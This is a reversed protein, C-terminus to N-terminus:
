LPKGVLMAWYTIYKTQPEYVLSVGFDVADQALLNKNHGPSDQWAKFVAEWSGQGTAVNEAIFQYDYGADNAREAPTSGDTGDHAAIGHNALDSAHRESAEVLRIDLQVPKLGNHRRYANLDGLATHLILPPPPKVEFPSNSSMGDNLRCEAAPYRTDPQDFQWGRCKGNEASCLAKCEEQSTVPVTKYTGDTHHTDLTSAQDYPRSEAQSCAPFAFLGLALVYLFIRM